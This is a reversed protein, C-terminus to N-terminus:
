PRLIITPDPIVPNVRSPNWILMTDRIDSDEWLIVSLQRPIHHSHSWANGTLVKPQHGNSQTPTFHWPMEGVLTETAVLITQITDWIETPLEDNNAAGPNHHSSRNLKETLSTLNMCFLKIEETKEPMAENLLAQIIIKASGLTIGQIEANWNRRRNNPRYTQGPQHEVANWLMEETYGLKASLTDILDKCYSECVTRVKNGSLTNTLSSNPVCQALTTEQHNKEPPWGMAELLKDIKIEKSKENSLENHPSYKNLLSDIESYRLLENLLNATVTRASQTPNSKAVYHIYDTFISGNIQQDSVQNESKFDPILKRIYDAIDSTQIGVNQTFIKWGVMRAPDWAVSAATLNGSKANEEIRALFRPGYEWRCRILEQVKIHFQKRAQAKEEQWVQLAQQYVEDNQSKEVTIRAIEADIYRRLIQLADAVQNKRQEYLEKAWASFNNQPRTQLRILKQAVKKINTDVNKLKFPDKGQAYQEMFAALENDLKEPKINEKTVLSQILSSAMFANDAAHFFKDLESQLSQAFINNNDQRFKELLAYCTGDFQWEQIAKYHQDIIAYIKEYPLKRKDYDEPETKKPQQISELGKYFTTADLFVTYTEDDIEQRLINELFDKLASVKRNPSLVVGWGPQPYSASLILVQRSDRDRSMGDLDYISNIGQPLLKQLEGAVDSLHSQQEENTSKSNGREKIIMLGLDKCRNPEQTFHKWLIELEEPLWRGLPILWFLTPIVRNPPVIKKLESIDYNAISYGM